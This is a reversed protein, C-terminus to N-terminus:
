YSRMLGIVVGQITLENVPYIEKYNRNEPKLYVADGECIFRKVTNEGDVLAIVIDGSRPEKKSDAIVMDGEFIGADEMSDGRVILIFAHEPNRVQDETLTMWEMINEESLVPGGAPITGLVPIKRLRMGRNLKASISRLLNIGRPTNDRKIYGKEALAKLHKIAANDSSAGLHDCIERVTPSRFNKKQYQRIFRFVKKQKRTLKPKNPNTIM